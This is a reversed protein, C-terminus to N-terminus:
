PETSVKLTLWSDKRASLSWSLIRRSYKDMVVALYRWQGGAKLYTIDGVWVQNPGTTIKELSRQSDRQLISQCEGTTPQPLDEWLTGEAGDPADVPRASGGVRVGEM